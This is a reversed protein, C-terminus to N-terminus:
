SKQKKIILSDEGFQEGLGRKRDKEERASLIKAIINNGYRFYNMDKCLLGFPFCSM